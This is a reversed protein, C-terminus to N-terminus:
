QRYTCIAEVSEVVSDQKPTPGFRRRGQAADNEERGEKGVVVDPALGHRPNGGLGPRRQQGWRTQREAAVSERRVFSTYEVITYIMTTTTALKCHLLKVALTHRSTSYAEAPKQKRTDGHQLSKYPLPPQDVVGSLMRHTPEILKHCTESSQIM